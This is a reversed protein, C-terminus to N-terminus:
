DGSIFHKIGEYVAYVFGGTTLGVVVKKFTRSVSKNFERQDAWYRHNEQMINFGDTVDGGGLAKIGAMHGTIKDADSNSLNFRCKHGHRELEEKIISRLLTESIELPM